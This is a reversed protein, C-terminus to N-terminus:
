FPRYKRIEKKLQELKYQDRIKKLLELEIIQPIPEKATTPLIGVDILAQLRQYKDLFNWFVFKIRSFDAHEERFPTGLLVATEFESEVLEKTTPDKCTMQDIPIIELVKYMHSLIEKRKNKPIDLVKLSKFGALKEPHLTLLNLIRGVTGDETSEPGKSSLFREMSAQDIEYHM